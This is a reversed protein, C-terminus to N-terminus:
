IADAAHAKDMAADTVPVGHADIAAGGVLDEETEFHAANSKANFFALVREVEAMTEVGIGDGPLMLLKFTTM